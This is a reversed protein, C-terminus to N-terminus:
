ELEDGVEKILQEVVDFMKQKGVKMGNEYSLVMPQKTNIGPRKPLIELLEDAFKKRYHAELQNEKCECWFMDGLTCNLTDDVCVLTDIIDVEKDQTM